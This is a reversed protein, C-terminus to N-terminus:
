CGGGVTAGAASSCNADTWSSGLSSQVNDSINDGSAGVMSSSGSGSGSGSSSTSGVEKQGLFIEDSMDMDPIVVDDDEDEDGYENEDMDMDEDDDDFEENEEDLSNDSNVKNAVAEAQVTLPQGTTPSSPNPVTASGSDNNIPQKQSKSAASLKNRSTGALSNRHTPRAHTHDGSYTVTFINPDTTSREM